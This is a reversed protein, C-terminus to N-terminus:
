YTTYEAPMQAMREKEKEKKDTLTDFLSGIAGGALATNLTGYAGLGFFKPLIAGAAIGLGQGLFNDNDVLGAINSAIGLGTGAAQLPHAKINAGVLRATNGLASGEVDGAIPVAKANLPKKFFKKQVDLMDADSMKLTKARDRMAKGSAKANYLQGFLQEIYSPDKGIDFEYKARGLPNKKLPSTGPTGTNGLPDAIQAM